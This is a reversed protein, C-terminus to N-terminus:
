RELEAQLDEALKKMVEADPKIMQRDYTLIGNTEDEVDSLQTLVAASLGQRILPIIEDRYLSDLDRTLDSTTNCVKYGYVRETNFVHGKLSCSYGGFESLVVPRDPDFKFSAKKFYVHESQVDSHSRGFWGSATDWIRSTDLPKLREYARKPAHQGWGENFITYYMVCPHDHLESIIGEACEFYAQRVRRSQTKPLCKLGITPLATDYIFSYSGNNIMDQFVAMGYKDCYYYFIAPELKIHKRLMNFGLAKARLIDDVYGNENGPLFIGDPYYGQDLLGHFFYPKGNLALAAQGGRHCIGITRLAFYSHVTDEGSTVTFEYLHPDEPTWLRPSEIDITISEGEFEYEKGELAILRRSEGGFVYITVSNLTTDTKLSTIRNSLPVYELWVTQWIGSIPTYWMGGRKHKQKGYPYIRATDDRVLVTLKNDGRAAVDTIDFSFPLYGGTHKGVLKDNIYVEAENDVAGFHLIARDDGKDVRLKREYRLLDGKKTIRCVGSASSEPPFPVRIKGDYVTRKGHTVSFSWEGNLIVFGRERKFSPDPHYNHPIAAIEYPTKLEEFKNKNYKTNSM